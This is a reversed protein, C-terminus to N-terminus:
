TDRRTRMSESISAWDTHRTTLMILAMVGFLLLSGMLLAYDESRLIMFLMGYLTAIAIAYTAALRKEGLVAKLYTGILVTCAATAIGYALGFGLHEALSILLLYFMGLAGGVLLYHIPHLRKQTLTETLFFAVFTLLVFLIGYKTARDTRTYVNTTEFLSVGLSLTHMGSCQDKQCSELIDAAGTSFASVSWKATFGTEDISRQNPLFRGSFKPHPWDAQMQMVANHAIPALNLQRSGRLSFTIAFTIDKEMNIDDLPAHIGRGLSSLSTGPKFTQRKKQVEITPDGGIGRLDNVSLMLRPKGWRQFGTIDKSMAALEKADFYGNMAFSSDYVPVSFIGRRRLETTVDTQVALKTAMVVRQGSLRKEVNVYESRRKDWVSETFQQEYPILLLPAAVTQEGTWSAAIDNLASERFVRREQVVDSIMALPILLLLTLVGITLCRMLLANQFM